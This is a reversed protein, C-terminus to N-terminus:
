PAGLGDRGLGLDHQHGRVAGTSVATSAIFSPAYSKTVLGSLRACTTRITRLASSFCDSSTSFRASRAWSASFRRRAIMPVESGHRRV